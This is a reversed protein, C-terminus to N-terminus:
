FRGKPNDKGSRLAEEVIYERCPLVSYFSPVENVEELWREIVEMVRYNLKALDEKTLSDLWGESAAGVEDFADESLRYVIEDAFDRNVKYEEIIGIAFVSTPPYGEMLAERACEDVSDCPGGRWIEDDISKTWAYRNAM